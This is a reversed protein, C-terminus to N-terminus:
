NARAARRQDRRDRTEQREFLSGTWHRVDRQGRTWNVGAGFSSHASLPQTDASTYGLPCSSGCEIAAKLDDIDMETWDAGDYIDMM